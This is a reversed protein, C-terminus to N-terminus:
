QHEPCWQFDSSKKTLDWLISATAALKPIFRSLFQTMGLFTQLDALNTSPDMNNIAEVKGPDLKLGEASIIHGFFPLETCGIRCKDPNFKLGTERAREMVAKLNTDHESLDNGYVVIDDAIGTVGPLDGFTEDVKKQFIDQACILGFPLRLFRYRGHPSNFTTYLSSEHDLKINWYGSRADVISYHKSGSLRSLVEDLTPTCHHPRKIAKNLDKPDLCLRLTGNRKTACVLSNVWDTPKDVKAIIEQKVLSELEKHLPERLAEPVRRPPHVVPLVTPDLTIHYEGGPNTNEEIQLIELLEVARLSLYAKKNEHDFKVLTYEVEDGWKLVDNQRSKLANYIHLFQTIGHKRVHDAYKKTEPWSLPSGLSLLGMSIN